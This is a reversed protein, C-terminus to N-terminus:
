AKRLQLVTYTMYIFLAIVSIFYIIDRSDIAGKSISSYHYNIGIAAIISDWGGIFVPLKALYTFSWHFVFCLFSGLIFAVIQNTTLSSALMGIAVFAGALSLLGIYSGIIEGMDINGRPSGLEIVSYVYLLTPLLAFIVLVFNALFKGMVIQFDTLPKTSLFEITGRSREESFSRMTVAPILFLFVLPGIAFLQELTAFNYQLVSTEGFVWMFLGVIILFVAMVLYATISSFFSIVEKKFISIM